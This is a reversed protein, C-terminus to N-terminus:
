GSPWNPTRSPMEPIPSVGVFAPLLLLVLALQCLPLRASLPTQTHLSTVGSPRSPQHLLTDMLDCSSAICPPICTCPPCSVPYTPSPPTPSSPPPLPSLLVPLLSLLSPPPLLPFSPSSSSPPPLLLHLPFPLLLAPSSPSPPLLCHGCVGPSSLIQLCSGPATQITHCVRSRPLPPLADSHCKPRGRRAKTSRAKFHWVSVSLRLPDWSPLPRM